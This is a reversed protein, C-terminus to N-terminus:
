QNGMIPLVDIERADIANGQSRQANVWQQAVRNADAQSNGVGSFRYLEQGTSDDVVRWAGTFTTGVSGAPQPEGTRAQIPEHSQAARQRQLDVTSGPVPARDANYEAGPHDRRYRELRAMAEQDDAAVFAAVIDTRDMGRFIEYNRGAPQTPEIERVEIDSRMGPNEARSREIWYEAAERSPFRRLINDDIITNPMRSFRDQGQIWIGWNGQAHTQQPAPQQTAAMSHLSVDVINPFKSPYQERAMQMAQNPNRAQFMMVYGTADKVNYFQQGEEGGDKNPKREQQAQRVFSKLAAKPLDGAVYKAFYEITSKDGSPALLKYLKKLYDQKYKDEDIAADLAVVFRLLTPEIKDYFENLWDGGPSRFEIYGDKTNISTFKNTSGAHIAKSAAVNVHEKMKDLVERATNPNRKITDKIIGLASKCYNNSTREFERLVYEDGMLLALKVYDLKALTYGQVSVNIHLGTNYDAGTYCGESDAWKKVKQLDSLLEGIPLPPSVFELGTDDSDKGELSGDPEVVYHGEERRAGHYSTAANVPRGIASSFDDAIEEPTRGNGSHSSTYYPWTIDYNNAVDTMYRYGQDRLWESDDYDDRHDEEFSERASDYHGDHEEYSKEALKAYEESGIEPYNGDKDAEIGLEECVEDDSLNERLYRRLYELGGREWDDDLQETQWIYFDEEMSQRLRQIEGRGNYDGDYFFNCADEISTVREDADYDAESEYDEDPNAANPVIMEFEMGAKANIKSALQRLSSPSMNVETLTQEVVPKIQKYRM